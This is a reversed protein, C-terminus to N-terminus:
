IIEDDKVIAAGWKRRICTAREVASSAIDLYYNDKDIRSM